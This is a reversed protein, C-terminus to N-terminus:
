EAELIEQITLNGTREKLWELKAAMDGAKSALVFTRSRQTARLEEIAENLLM